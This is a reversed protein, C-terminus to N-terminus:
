KRSDLAQSASGNLGEGHCLINPFDTFPCSSTLLSYFLLFTQIFTFLFFPLLLFYAAIPSGRRLGANSFPYNGIFKTLTNRNITIGRWQFLSLRPSTFVTRFYFSIQTLFPYLIHLILLFHQSLFYLLTQTNSANLSPFPSSNPFSFHPIHTSLTFPLILNKFIIHIYSYNPVPFTCYFSVILYVISFSLCQVSATFRLSLFILSFTSYYILSLFFYNAFFLILCILFLFSSIQNFYFRPPLIYPIHDLFLHIFVTLLFCITFEM